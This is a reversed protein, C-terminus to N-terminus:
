QFATPRNTWEQPKTAPVEFLQVKEPKFQKLARSVDKMQGPEGQVSLIYKGAELRNRLSLADGGNNWGLPGGVIASILAGAGAGLLGALTHNIIGAANPIIEIGNLWNFAFASIFGISMVWYSIQRARIRAQAPAEIVGLSEASEFGEGIISMHDDSVKSSRLANAAAEAQDRNPLVAILCKM